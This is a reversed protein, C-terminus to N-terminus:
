KLGTLTESIEWLRQQLSKDYTLASSKTLQKKVFYKGSIDAVEPSSALYISTEAGKEESIGRFPHILTLAIRYLLSVNKGLNTRTFGPHVANVTVNTVGSNILRNHLEYTFLINALKSQGYVRMSSYKKMSQLDDLNISARHHIGSSVTIIRSPATAILTDLLLNTLLFPALHNVAFGTEFGDITETRKGTMIGANNILVHLNDFNALFDYTLKKISAPSSLDCVMLEVKSNNTKKIIEEQVMSGKKQNRCVMIIQSGMRALELATAKGIGSNAGTIMCTRNQMLQNPM